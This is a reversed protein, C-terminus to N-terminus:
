RPSPTVTPNWSIGESAWIGAAIEPLPKLKAKRAIQLDNPMETPHIM